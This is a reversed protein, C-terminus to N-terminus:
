LGANKRCSFRRGCLGDSGFARRDHGSARAACEDRGGSAAHRYVSRNFSSETRLHGAGNRDSFGAVGIGLTVGMTEIRSAALLMLALVPLSTVFSYVAFQVLVPLQFSGKAADDNWDLGTRHKRSHDGRGTGPDSSYVKDCVAEARQVAADM